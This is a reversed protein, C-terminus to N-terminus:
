TPQDWEQYLTKIMQELQCLPRDTDIVLHSQRAKEENPMQSNIRSLAEQRSFGNRSHLRQIQVEEPAVACVTIDALRDGGTEFLLPVDLVVFRLGKERCSDIEQQIKGYVMPHLIANLRERKEEDSFVINGLAKRDLKGEQTFVEPGFAQLILPLAEGGDATLSRSIEDADIVTAGLKKLMGSITTKGCAIGGTLGIVKM